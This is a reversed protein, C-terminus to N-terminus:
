LAPLAGAGSATGLRDRGIIMRENVDFPYSASLYGEPLYGSGLLMPTFRSSLGLQTDLGLRAEGVRFLDWYRKIEFATHAPKELLVIRQVMDMQEDTLDHPALVTFRHAFRVVDARTIPRWGGTGPDTPDGLALGGIGRTRYAEIIRVKGDECAPDFLWDGPNDELYLRLAIAVGALTGRRRYLQDAHEIFFRRRDESWLPDLAIGFWCALWDLADPPATSPDFLASVRDIRDELATYFGEFNALWREGFSAAVADERYIAPLYRQLYSFRPYWARLARVAPTSRGTGSLTLEIQVYRGRVEQFLLEWTGARDPLPDMDAWPDFYPIEAGDDRLYPSPQPLWQGQLLLEPDDAARARVTIATGQPIQADLMLRHWTCGTEASDFPEGPVGAGFSAPTTIAAEGAYQCDALPQLSVWRDAFDYYIQDGVARSAAAVLAKAEWRRLPLYERQEVVRGGVPDLEFAMVQNGDREAVYLLAAPAGSTSDGATAGTGSQCGAGTSAASSAQLLPGPAYVFDHGVVSFQRVVGEGLSPDFVSVSDELSYVRLVDEGAIEYILSFSRDPDSDLILVHGDPGPEISIPFRPGGPSLQFGTPLTTSPLRRAKRRTAHAGAPQFGDEEGLEVTALTRFNEDLVWYTLNDRDLVLVGGDALAVLDWPAFPIENPWQVLLPRGGGHLDFILLGHETLDGVVLYHKTTVALGRLQHEAPTQLAKVGFSGDSPPACAAALDRSQWYVRSAPSNGGGQGTVPLTRLGAQADDIWYWNGYMDRDAGRRQSVALPTTRAARKFLPVSRTLRLASSNRDWEVPTYDGLVWKEGLTVEGGGGPAAGADQVSLSCHSWDTCGYLLHFKSGNADM